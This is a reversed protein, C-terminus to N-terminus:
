RGRLVAATSDSLREITAWLDDDIRDPELADVLHVADELHAVLRARVQEVDATPEPGM